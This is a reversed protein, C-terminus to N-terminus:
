CGFRAGGEGDAEGAGWVLEALHSGLALDEQVVLLACSGKARAASVATASCAVAVTTGSAFYVAVNLNDLLHNAPSARTQRMCRLMTYPRVKTRVWM